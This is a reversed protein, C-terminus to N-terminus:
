RPSQNIAAAHNENRQQNRLLGAFAKGPIPPSNIFGQYSDCGNKRLFALQEQLEVGEAMVKFGLTHGMAVIIAAIDINEQHLLIDNVFSKDIKLADLPFDKLYALSSYGSGFNDIALRIGQAHLSNLIALANKQNGMLGSETIELELQESPFGTDNLVTAVIASIDGRRFQHPSIKVALILPPLGANIWLRGQRCTERLVWEGIKLILGTEEAIPIFRTPPVLGDIPNQWRVLAEAGVIRGSVIDIQPQYFVCLEQRELAHRLRTELALRELAALTLDESFYAFCGRGANKAQYLAADAHDMLLEINDGHQPYLSIGISVGIQVDDAQSLSFSKSLDTIIEEAVIAADEPKAIDELLVVFEDGGLRAVMDADRLRATIRLAVQQLLEDGGLHGCSDNVEKFRDLDLMLLALTKGYRREVNISFQLREQLLRRNPLNTLPDYFALQKIKQEATVRETIDFQTAVYHTIEVDSKKVATITLWNPYITGNKHRNWIEGKWTGTTNISEWMKAFYAADHRGSKLINTKQGIAEENTYGTIETFAKNVRLIVSSVDTIYIAEQAEFAVAAIALDLEIRKHENVYTALAMGTTSLILIYFWYNLLHTEAIDDAFFGIGQMAGALAQVAVIILAITTGRLDIRLAIWIIPLFMWNNKTVQGLSNHFLDLFVIQGLLITLGLLFIAEIIQGEKRWNTKEWWWILILPTILIVGLTDSMWWEILNSLYNEPPLLRFFLLVTNATLTGFAVSACGGLLILRLYDRLAHIRPNFSNKRTLLWAGFFAQLTDSSAIIVGTWFPHLYITNVLIAGLFAGWAYKKGGILLAAL